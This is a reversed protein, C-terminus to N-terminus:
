QLHYHGLRKHWVETINGESPYATHEEEKPDFSFSKGRMKVRLIVKGTADFIQCYRNEFSVKLGREILQGVSSLNQDIDPVYLVDTIRKTGSSTSIEITGKGKVSIYGGDGIRVKTIGTPKFEKFLTRDYTMHNTCGSDILWSESGNGTSSCTAVFIQDEEDEDAVRAEEEHKQLTTKCLM